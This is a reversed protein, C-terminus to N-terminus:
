GGEEGAGAAADDELVPDDWVHGCASCVPWPPGMDHAMGCAQCAWAVLIAGCPTCEDDQEGVPEGCLWCRETTEDSM